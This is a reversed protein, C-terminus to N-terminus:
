GRGTSILKASERGIFLVTYNSFCMNCRWEIKGSLNRFLHSANCNPCTFHMLLFTNVTFAGDDPVELAQNLLKLAQAGASHGSLGADRLCQIAQKINEKENSM